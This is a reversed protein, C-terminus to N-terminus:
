FRYVILIDDYRNKIHRNDIIEFNNHIKEFYKKSLDINQIDEIIYIGNLNMKDKLINFTKLQDELEHSADDIIVDFTINEIQNLFEKKTADSIIINYKPDNLFPYIDSTKYDVGIIKSEIFYETWMQLSKGYAIGIELVSSNHRYPELLRAYEDIYSHATGKDGHGDPAQYNVYIEQLTKM